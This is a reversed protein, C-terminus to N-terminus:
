QLRVEVCTGGGPASRLDLAGGLEGVRRRMGTLGFGSRRAATPDFGRGDDSIRMVTAAPDFVLELDLRSAGAHKRVNAVAEQGIRMLVIDHGPPLAREPGRVQM